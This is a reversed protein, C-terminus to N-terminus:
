LERIRGVGLKKFALSPRFYLYVICRLIIIIIDKLTNKKLLVDWSVYLNM